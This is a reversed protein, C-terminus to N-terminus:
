AAVELVEDGAMASASTVFRVRVQRGAIRALRRKFLGQLRVMQAQVLEDACTVVLEDNAADTLQTQAFLRNYRGGYAVHLETMAEEWWRVAEDEDGVMPAAGDIEDAVRQVVALAEDLPMVDDEDGLVMLGGAAEDAAEYWREDATRGARLATVVLGPTVNRGRANEADLWRGWARVDDQTLTRGAAVYFKNIVDNAVGGFINLEALVDFISGDDGEQEREKQGARGTANVRDPAYSSSSPEKITERLNISPDPSLDHLFETADTVRIASDHKDGGGSLNDGGGAETNPSLNDGPPTMNDGGGQGAYEPSLSDGGHAPLASAVLRYHNTGFPGKKVLVLVGLTELQRSIRQISRESYGTKEAMRRVSPYIHYGEDDAHDAYALAVLKQRPPLASEWVLGMMKVSM